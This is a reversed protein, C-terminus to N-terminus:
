SFIFSELLRKRKAGDNAIYRKVHTQLLRCYSLRMVNAVAENGWAVKQREVDQSFDFYTMSSLKDLELDTTHFKRLNDKLDYKRQNESIIHSIISTQVKCRNAVEDM